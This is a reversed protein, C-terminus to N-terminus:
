LNEVLITVGGRRLAAEYAPLVQDPEELRFVFVNHMMRRFASVHDQTHQVGGDLPTCSGIATRIIVTPQPNMKDLHNILQDLALLMFDMRNYICVPLHGTLALGTCFGMQLNEAIPFEIRQAMPVGDLSAFMAGPYRVSQGVFIAGNDALMKMAKNIM